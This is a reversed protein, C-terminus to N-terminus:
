LMSQYCALLQSLADVKGLDHAASMSTVIGRWDATRILAKGMAIEGTCPLMNRLRRHCVRGEPADSDARVTDLPQKEVGDDEEEHSLLPARAPSSASAKSKTATPDGQGCREFVNAPTGACIRRAIRVHRCRRSFVRYGPAVCTPLNRVFDVISFVGRYLAYVVLASGHWRAVGFNKASPKLALCSHTMEASLGALPLCMDLTATHECDASRGSVSQFSSNQTGSFCSCLLGGRPSVWLIASEDRRSGYRLVIARSSAAPDVVITETM